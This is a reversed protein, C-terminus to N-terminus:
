SPKVNNKFEIIKLTHLNIEKTEGVRFPAFCILKSGKPDPSM